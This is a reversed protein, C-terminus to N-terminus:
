RPWSMLAQGRFSRLCARLFFGLFLVSERQFDARSGGRRGSGWSPVPLWKWLSFLRLLAINKRIRLFLLPRLGWFLGGSSKKSRLIPRFGHNRWFEARFKLGFFSSKEESFLRKQLGRSFRTFLRKWLLFSAKQRWFHRILSGFFRAFNTWIPSKAFVFSSFDFINKLGNEYSFDCFFSPRRLINEWFSNVM